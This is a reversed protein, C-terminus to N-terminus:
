IESWGLDGEDLSQSIIPICFTNALAGKSRGVPNHNAM